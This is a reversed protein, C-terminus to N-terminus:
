PRFKYVAELAWTREDQYIPRWVGRSGINLTCDDLVTESGLNRGSVAVTLKDDPDTWSVRANYTSYSPQYCQTHQGSALQAITTAGTDTESQWYMGVRANLQGGNSMPYNYTLNGTFTDEPQNNYVNGTLDEVLGTEPNLVSYNTYEAEQHALGGDFGFGMGLRAQFELEYGTIKVEAANQLLEIDPNHGFRGDSNEIIVTEHKDKYEMRFLALNARLRHGFLMTKFGVEYNDLTEPQIVQLPALQPTSKVALETNFNGSQFGRSWLTYVLGEDIFGVPQPLMFNLSATPTVKQWTAKGEGFLSVTDDNLIWTFGRFDGSPTVQGELNMFEREEHTWRAGAELRFWDTLQFKTHAFIGHSTEWSRASTAFPSPGIGSANLPVNAALMGYAGECRVTRGTEFVTAYAAWCEDKDNGVWSMSDLFNYGILVDAVGVRANLLLEANFVESGQPADSSGFHGRNEAPEATKDQDITFAYASKRQGLNGSVEFHDFLGVSGTGDWAFEGVISETQVRLYQREDAYFNYRGAAESARCAAEFNGGGNAEHVRQYDVVRVFRCDGGRNNENQDMRSATLDFRWADSPVWRLSANYVKINRDNHDTGLLLNKYYGDARDQGMAVRAFVTESLPANVILRADRRNHSGTRVMVEGELVDTPRRTVINIAGATTNKGFLTGQPGRLVEIREIDLTSMVNAIRSGVYIGNIYQGVAPTTSVDAPSGAATIGRISFDTNVARPGTEIRLNPVMEELEGSNTIGHDELAQPNLATMSIPVEQMSESERRASVVIAELVDAGSAQAEQAQSPAAKGLTLGVTSVLALSSVSLLSRHNFM